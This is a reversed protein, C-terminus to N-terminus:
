MCTFCHTTRVGFYDLETCKDHIAFRRYTSGVNIVVYFDMIVIIGDRGKDCFTPSNRISKTKHKNKMCKQKRIDQNNLKRIFYCSISKIHNEQLLRSAYKFHSVSFSYSVLQFSFPYITSFLFSCSVSISFYLILSRFTLLPSTVPHIVWLNKM